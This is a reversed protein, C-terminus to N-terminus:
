KYQNVRHYRMFLVVGGICVIVMLIGTIIINKSYTFQDGNGISIKFDIKKNNGELVITQQGKYKQHIIELTHTGGEVNKFVAIGNDDTSATQISSHLKLTVNSVPQAGNDVVKIKLEYGNGNNLNVDNKQDITTASDIKAPEHVSSTFNLKNFTFWNDTKISIENSWSGTACGNGARIRFYYVTAPKLNQVDFTMQNNSNIRLDQVGYIYNGSNTGYTLVYKDVPKDAPTFFLSVTNSNKAIAGYLWPAKPGPKQDTCDTNSLPSNARVENATFIKTQPITPSVTPNEACGLTVFNGDESKAVLGDVDISKVQYHYKTCSKLTTLDIQHDSVGVPPVDTEISTFGYSSTLGYDVISSSNNKTKWTIRAETTGAIVNPDGDIVPFTMNADYIMGLLLGYSWSQNEMHQGVIYDNADARLSAPVYGLGSMSLIRHYQDGDGWRKSLGAWHIEHWTSVDILNTVGEKYTTSGINAWPIGALSFKSANNKLYNFANKDNMYFGAVLNTPAVLFDNYLSDDTKIAFYYGGDATRYDSLKSRLDAATQIAWNKRNIDGVAAWVEAANELALAWLMDIEAEYKIQSTNIVGSAAYQDWYDHTHVTSVDIHKDAANYLPHLWDYLNNLQTKISNAFVLDGNQKYIKGAAYMYVAGWDTPQESPCAVNNIDISDTIALSPSENKAFWALVNKAFTPKWHYLGLAAYATDRAFNTSFIPTGAALYSQEYSNAALQNLAVCASYKEIETLNTLNTNVIEDDLYHQWFSQAASFDAASQNLGARVLSIAATKSRNMAFVMEWDADNNPLNIARLGAFTVENGTATKTTDFTYRPDQYVSDVYAEDAQSAGMAVYYGSFADYITIIPQGSVSNDIVGTLNNSGDAGTLRISFGFYNIGNLAFRGHFRDQYTFFNGNISQGAAIRNWQYNFIGSPKNNLYLWQMKSGSDGTELYHGMKEWPEIGWDFVSVFVKNQNDAFAADEAKNAIFSNGGAAIPGHRLTEGVGGTTWSYAPFVMKSSPDSIAPYGIKERPTNADIYYNQVTTDAQVEGILSISVISFLLFTVLLVSLAFFQKYFLKM